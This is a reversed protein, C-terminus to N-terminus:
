EIPLIVTFIAGGGETDTLTIKGDHMAAIEQAVSLGLGFHAKDARSKDARYFRTFIQTKDTTAIGKGHDIVSIKVNKKDASAAILILTDAPTYEMANSLLVTFLQTLREKDAHIDPLPADPLHLTLTHAHNQALLHFKEYLEICFTDTSLTDKQLRLAKADGGALLLLDDILRTMRDAEDQATKCFCQAKEPPVAAENAASLSAKIVTLPSRLEHSAAAVFENQQKVAFATPRTAIGSLVWAIVTLVVAGLLTIVGYLLLLRRLHQTMAAMDQLVCLQVLQGKNQRLQAMSVRYMENADGHITFQARSQERLNQTLVMSDAVIKECRALLVARPTHPIWAGGFHFPTGNDTVAIVCLSKMEQAALWNDSIAQGSSLKDLIASVNNELLANMNSKYQAQAMYFTLCMAALLVLSTLASMMVTMRRRLKQIM